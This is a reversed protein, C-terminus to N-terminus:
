NQLIASLEDKTKQAPYYDSNIKLCNEVARMANRPDNMSMYYEVFLYHLEVDNYYNELSKDLYFKAIEPCGNKLLARGIFKYSENNINQFIDSASLINNIYDDKKAKFFMTMDIELFNRVQFFSPYNIIGGQLIPILKIMWNARLSDVSQFVLKAERLKGLLVLTYGYELEYNNNYFYDICAKPNGNELFKLAESYNM